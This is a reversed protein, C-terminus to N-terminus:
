FIERSPASACLFHSIRNAETKAGQRSITEEVDLIANPKKREVRIYQTYVM